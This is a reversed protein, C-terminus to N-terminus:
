LGGEGSGLVGWDTGRRGREGGRGGVRGGSGLGGFEAMGVVAGLVIEARRDRVVGTNCAPTKRQGFLAKLTIAILPRLRATRALEPFTDSHRPTPILRRM